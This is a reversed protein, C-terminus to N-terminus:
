SSKLADGGDSVVAGEQRIVQPEIMRTKLSGERLQLVTFGCYRSRSLERKKQMRERSSSKKEPEPVALSPVLSNEGNNRWSEGKNTASRQWVTTGSGM